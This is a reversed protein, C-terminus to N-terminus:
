GGAAIGRGSRGLPGAPPSHLWALRHGGRENPRLVALRLYQETAREFDRYGYYYYDGLREIIDPDDPALRVATDIAAKAEALRADTREIDNLYAQAIAAALEAWALAFKPDLRVAEKLFPESEQPSGANLQRLGRAKLYADYAALNETPRRDLLQKEQPSLAASLATAIAQSLEAQIAFVDTIDRDYAKAWIHEDTRADILQGTVRVKSGARRVSGELVYAVGLEKAIERTTKTTGRYQMVSTRSVVHLERVLALNTLIDEHMGDAFFAGDKGESMNEFPLVAISKAM